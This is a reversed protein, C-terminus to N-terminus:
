TRDSSEAPAEGEAGDFEIKLMGDGAFAQMEFHRQRFIQLLKQSPQLLMRLPPIFFPFSKIKELEKVARSKHGFIALNSFNNQFKAV